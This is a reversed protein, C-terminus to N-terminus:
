AVAEFVVREPSSRNLSAFYTEVAIAPFMERLRRASSRLDSLQCERM